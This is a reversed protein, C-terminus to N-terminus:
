LGVTQLYEVSRRIAIIKDALCAEYAKDEVEIVLVDNYDGEDLVDRLHDWDVGGEGPLCPTHTMLPASRNGHRALARRNRRADKAHVRRVKKMYPRLSDLSIEQWVWHAPDFEIFLRDSPLLEFGRDWTDPGTFINKGHPWEDLTFDMPCNELCIDVGLDEAVQLIPQWAGQVLSWNREPIALQNRGLFGSYPVNLLQSAKIV